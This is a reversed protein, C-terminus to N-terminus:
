TETSLEERTAFISEMSWNSCLCSSKTHTSPKATWRSFNKWTMIPLSSFSTSSRKMPVTSSTWSATYFKLPVQRHKPPTPTVQSHLNREHRHISSRRRRKWAQDEQPSCDKQYRPWSGQLSCRLNRLWHIRNTRLQGNKM